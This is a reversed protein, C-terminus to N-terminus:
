IIFFSGLECLANIGFNALLSMSDDTVSKAAEPLFALLLMGVICLLYRMVRKYLVYKKNGAIRRKFGRRQWFFEQKERARKEWDDMYSCYFGNFGGLVIYMLMRWMPIEQFTGNGQYWGLLLILVTLLFIVWKVTWIRTKDRMM